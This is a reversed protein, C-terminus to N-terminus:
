SIPNYVHLSIIDSYHSLVISIAFFEQIVAASESEINFAKNLMATISM